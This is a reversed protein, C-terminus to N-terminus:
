QKIAKRFPQVEKVLENEGSRIQYRINLNRQYLEQVFGMYADKMAESYGLINSLKGMLTKKSQLWPRTCCDEEHRTPNPSYTTCNEEHCSKLKGFAHGRGDKDPRGCFRCQKYPREYLSQLHKNTFMCDEAKAFHFDHMQVLLWDLANMPQSVRELVQFELPKDHELAHLGLLRTQVKAIASLAEFGLGKLAEIYRSLLTKEDINLITCATQIDDEAYFAPDNALTFEHSYQEDWWEEFMPIFPELDKISATRKQESMGITYM